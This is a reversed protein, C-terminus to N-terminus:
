LRLLAELFGMNTKKNKVILLPMESDMQLVKDAVSGLLINALGTRGKSAIVVFDCKQKIAELNIKDAPQEDNDLTLVIELNDDEIGNQKIFSTAHQHTNKKMIEAFEEYSKGTSHYGWPVNYTNQLLIRANTKEAILKAELLAELSSESFDVSVMIREIKPASNEPIILMSCHGIRALRGPLQGSGPLSKKRGMIMLDVEKIDSWRLLKDEANGERVEIKIDTEKRGKYHLNIKEQIEEEISEDSPAMLDPYKELLEEPLELSRAVHFFYLKDIDFITTLFSTYAILTKDMETLDLAVLVRKFPFM